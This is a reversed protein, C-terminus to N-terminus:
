GDNLLHAEIVSEFATESHPGVSLATMRELKQSLLWVAVHGYPALEGGRADNRALEHKIQERTLPGRNLKKHSRVWELVGDYVGKRNNNLVPLNLNLVGNLQDDFGPDDAHISGDPEYRVRTEIHHSPDAPNWPVDRDGKRTDCHQLHAPQGHGGLCAGLLNRYNLQESPYRAQCRWHEIKMTTPGSRIRGMCYCCLGRQETALADRLEDKAAYNDYDCYPTQRHATLSVPEPCKTIARM